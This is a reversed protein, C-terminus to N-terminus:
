QLFVGYPVDDPYLVMRGDETLVCPVQPPIDESIYMGLMPLDGHETQIAQLHAIYDSIKM